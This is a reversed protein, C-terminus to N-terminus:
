DKWHNPDGRNGSETFIKIIFNSIKEAIKKMKKLLLQM